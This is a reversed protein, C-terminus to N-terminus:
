LEIVTTNKIRKERIKKKVRVSGHYQVASSATIATSISTVSSNDDDDDITGIFRPLPLQLGTDSNVDYDDGSSQAIAAGAADSVTPSYTSMEALKKAMAAEKVMRIRKELETETTAAEGLDGANGDGGIAKKDSGLQLGSMIEQAASAKKKRLEEESREQKEREEQRKADAEEEEM